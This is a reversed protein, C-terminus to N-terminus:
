LSRRLNTADIVTRVIKANKLLPEGDSGTGIPTGTVEYLPRDRLTLMGCFEQNSAPLTKASKDPLILGEYVSVGSELTNDAHNRSHGNAPLKGYRLYCRRAKEWKKQQAIKLREIEAITEPHEVAFSVSNYGPTGATDPCVFRKSRLYDYVEAYTKGEFSIKEPQTITSSVYWVTTAPVNIEETGHDTGRYIKHPGSYYGAISAQGALYGLSDRYTM